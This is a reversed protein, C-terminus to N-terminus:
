RYHRHIHVVEPPPQPQEDSSVRWYVYAVIGIVVISVWILVPLVNRRERRGMQGQPIPPPLHSFALGCHPCFSAVGPANASCRPCQVQGQVRPPQIVRGTWMQEMKTPRSRLLISRFLTWVVILLLIGTWAPMLYFFSHTAGMM